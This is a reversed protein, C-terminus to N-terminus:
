NNEECHLSSFHLDFRLCEHRICIVHSIYVTASPSANVSPMPITQVMTCETTIPIDVQIRILITHHVQHHHRPGKCQAVTHHRYMHHWQCTGLTDKLHIISQIRISFLPFHGMHIQISTTNPTNITYMVEQNFMTVQLIHQPIVEMHHRKAQLSPQLFVMTTTAQIGQIIIITQITATIQIRITAQIIPILMPIIDVTDMGVVAVSAMARTRGLHVEQIIEKHFLQFEM